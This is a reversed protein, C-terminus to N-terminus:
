VNIIVPLPKILNWIEPNVTKLKILNFYKLKQVIFEKTQLNLQNDKTIVIDKKNNNSDNQDGFLTSLSSKGTAQEVADRQANSPKQDTFMKRYMDTELQNYKKVM